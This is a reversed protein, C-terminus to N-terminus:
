KFGGGDAALTAAATAGAREEDEVPGASRRSVLIMFM